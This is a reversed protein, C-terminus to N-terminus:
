WPRSGIMSSRIVTRRPIVNTFMITTSATASVIQDAPWGDRLPNVVVTITDGPKVSDPKWGHRLLQFPAGM